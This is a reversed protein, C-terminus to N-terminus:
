CRSRADAGMTRRQRFVAYMVGAVPRFFTGLADLLHDLAIIKDGLV